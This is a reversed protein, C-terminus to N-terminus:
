NDSQVKDICAKLKKAVVQVHPEQIMSHHNGPVKHIELQPIIRKEWGARPFLFLDFSENFFSFKPDIACLLTVKGPYAQFVYKPESKGVSIPSDVHKKKSLKSYIKHLVRKVEEGLYHRQKVPSLQVLNRCRCSIARYFRYTRHFGYIDLIALLAVSKGKARLQQAIEFAVWSGFSYGALLYPPEPQVALIDNVHHAALAKIKDEFPYNSFVCYGSEMFYFPQETGLSEALPVAEGFSNACFFLPAKFAQEHVAVMLSNDRPRKGKRGAVITLLARYDETPLQYLEKCYDVSSEKGKSLHLAEEEELLSAIKEITTLEFLAALPLQRQLTKEIEAVLRVAVLSNGGLEFFNDHIGIQQIGLINSWIKALIEETPKSPAVFSTELNPELNAAPLLQCDLERNTTPFSAEPMKSSTKIWYSQREFPYTPLSIPHYQQYDSINFWNVKAGMLWLQALTSFLHHLNSLGSDTDSFSSLFIQEHHLNPPFDLIHNLSVELLIYKPDQCPQPLESSIHSSRSFQQEWEHANITHNTPIKKATVASIIPIKAPQFNPTVLKLNGETVILSIADELSLIGAITAAVYQGIGYGITIAPEIGWSQWLKALAYELSFVAVAYNLRSSDHLSEAEIIELLPKNIQGYLIAECQELCSRFAYQSNYLWRVIESYNSKKGSFIFCIQLPKRSIIQKNFVSQLPNKHLFAKLQASFQEKSETIIALRHKFHSRRISATFCIDTLSVTPQNELFEQYRCAISRLAIESKASLTFIQIPLTSQSDEVKPEIPAEELIVHANTGGYGFASVGARLPHLQQPLSELTQQVRLGLKEFSISPNPQQFHLQPPIQRHQLALAVKILGAIGAAAETHGINTKVSGVRCPNEPSRNKGVVAGLAKIELADGILTGTGQAEIYHISQPDIKAQQYAQQLLEIQAQLNPSTIGNSRGNHNVASGKIVAYIRDGDKQAQSLPKLVVIGVGEGRVYGDAKADFAKCRHDPAILGAKAFIATAEPLLILNVGGALALSSEGTWLSQCARDIAVLSSSCATNVAISVGRFDFHYSIRNATMCSHNGTSAQFNESEQNGFLKFYESSTIGIFVGTNSGALKEPIEGADELAEWAVELLLRHQPDIMVAEQASIKFFDADFKDVGELFGGWNPFNLKDLNRQCKTIADVGDELLEWFAEPHNAGPFRCGIGTIAIYEKSM